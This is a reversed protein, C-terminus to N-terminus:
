NWAQPPSRRQTAAHSRCVANCGAHSRPSYFFRQGPASRLRLRHERSGLLPRITLCIIDLICGALSTLRTQSTLCVQKSTAVWPNVSGSYQNLNQEKFIIIWLSESVTCIYSLNVARRVTLGRSVGLVHYQLAIAPRWSRLHSTPEYFMKRLVVTSIAAPSRSFSLRCLCLRLQVYLDFIYASFPDSDFLRTRSAFFHQSHM